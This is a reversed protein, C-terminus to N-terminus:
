LLVSEIRQFIMSLIRKNYETKNKLYTKFEAETFMGLVLGLYQNRLVQNKQFTRLIMDQKQDFSLNSINKVQKQLEEDFLLMIIAHQLKLIPRLTTNQFRESESMKDNVKVSLIQPRISIKDM